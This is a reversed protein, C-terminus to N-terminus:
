VGVAAAHRGGYAVRGVVARLFVDNSSLCLSAALQAARQDTGPTTDLTLEAVAGAAVEHGASSRSGDGTTQM